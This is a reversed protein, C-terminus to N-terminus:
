QASNNEAPLKGYAKEYQKITKRMQKVKDWEALRNEVEVKRFAKVFPQARLVKAQPDVIVLTDKDVALFGRKNDMSLVQNVGGVELELPMPFAADDALKWEFSIGEDNRTQVLEPLDKQYLYAKFLWTYDTATVRNVIDILDQTGAFLPKFNGPKPNPTGYVLERTASFFAEDGIVERLTHLFVAGKNYIDSGPGDVYVEQETMARGAVVPATSKIQRRKSALHEKYFLDGYLYEAYLTQMYAGYGEHLWMDDVNQHTLQNGFWEHAFEHHLLWDFGFKDVKYKNGYANITQHEMGLHATDVVGMKENGFPYPGIVQEFFDLIQSFEDFLGKAKDKHEKLHWYQLDITNGYRSQYDAQMLDYPGINLSIAYTNTSNLTKWHYTNWQGESEKGMFKGNAAAALPEPVTIHIDASLPERLSHDICPWIVDCGEGQVATAIWPQGDKTKKWDFGGDWPPRTAELPVGSYDITVKIQEGKAYTKGLEILLSGETNSYAASSLTQGNVAVKDLQFLHDLDLKVIDIAENLGLTLTAQATISHTEPFIKFNLDAHDVNVAAHEPKLKGGSALTYASRKSRAGAAKLPDAKNVANATKDSSTTSTNTCASLALAILTVPLLRKM